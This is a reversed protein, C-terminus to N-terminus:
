CTGERTGARQLSFSHLVVPNTEGTILRTCKWWTRHSVTPKRVKQPQLAREERGTAHSGLTLGGSELTQASVVFTQRPRRGLQPAVALFAQLAALVFGPPEM